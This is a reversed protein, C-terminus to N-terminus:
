AGSPLCITSVDHGTITCKRSDPHEQLRKAAVLANVRASVSSTDIRRMFTAEYRAQIERRTINLAGARIATRVIWEIQDGMTKLMPVNLSRLAQASADRTTIAADLM